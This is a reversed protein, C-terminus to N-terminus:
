HYRIGEDRRYGRIALAGLAVTWVTFSIVSTWNVSFDSVSAWMLEVAGRTPVYPSIMKIFGPASDPGSLLGGAFAMPLFLLQVVVLAAKSPLSYGIALGMLIFPLSALVMVGIASLFQLPTITAETLFAAVLLVPILSLFMMVLGTVLRGAFRPTAGVPLTRTFPDWPRSRDESVGLGHGFLNSVMAAFVLM